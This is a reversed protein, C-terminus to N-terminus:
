VRGPGEIFQDGFAIANIMVCSPTEAELTGVNLLNLGRFPMTRLEGPSALMCYRQRTVTEDTEFGETEILTVYTDKPRKGKALYVPLYLSKGVLFKAVTNADKSFNLKGRVSKYM